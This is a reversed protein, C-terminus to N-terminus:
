GEYGVQLNPIKEGDFWFKKLIFPKIQVARFHPAV